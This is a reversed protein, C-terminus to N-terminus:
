PPLGTVNDHLGDESIFEFSDILSSEHHCIIIFCGESQSVLRNGYPKAPLFLATASVQLFVCMDARPIPNLSQSRQRQSTKVLLRNDCSKSSFTSPRSTYPLKRRDTHQQEKLFLFFTM